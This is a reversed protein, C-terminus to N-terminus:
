GCGEARPDPWAAGQAVTLVDRAQVRERGIPTTGNPPRSRSPRRQPPADWDPGAPDPHPWHAPVRSEPPPPPTPEAPFLKDCDGGSRWIRYLAELDQVLLAVGGAFPTSDTAGAIAKIARELASLHANIAANVTERSM